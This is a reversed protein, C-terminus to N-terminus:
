SFKWNKEKLAFHVGMLVKIQQKEGGEFGLFEYIQQILWEFGLVGNIQQTM